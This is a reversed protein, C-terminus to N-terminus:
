EEKTMLQILIPSNMSRFSYYSSVFRDLFDKAITNIDQDYKDSKILQNVVNVIRGNKITQIFVSGIVSQYEKDEEIILTVIEIDDPKPLVVKQFDAKRELIELLLMLRDRYYAALKYNGESALFNINQYFRQSVGVLDGKLVSKINEIRDLYEELQEKGICIGKCLGLSYYDCPKGDQNKKDCYPVISRILRLTKDMGMSSTYPGFYENQVKLIRNTKAPRKRILNIVPYKGSSNIQVYTYTKEEKLLINFKPQLSNILNAELLLAEKETKVVTYEIKYIQSVMIITRRTKSKEDVFYSSVRNKLNKAKGVYLLEDSESYYRYVGAKNPLTKASEKLRVINPNELIDIM